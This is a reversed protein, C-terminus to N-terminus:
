RPRTERSVDRRYEFYRCRRGRAQWAREFATLPADRHDRHADPALANRLGAANSLVDDIVRAYEPDDTAVFLAGDRALKQSLSAILRPAVIRRRAHRRKPWPDPFNIWFSAVSADAFAERVAWEASIGLLRVNTLPTRALRRALKLVRSFDLEIGIFAREPHRRALEILFEGRGFGVDVCLELPADRPVGFIKSWDGGHIEAPWVRWDVGPVDRDISRSM